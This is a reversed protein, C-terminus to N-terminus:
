PGLYFFELTTYKEDTGFFDSAGNSISAGTTYYELKAYSNGSVYIVDNLHVSTQGNGGEVKCSLGTAFPVFHNGDWLRIMTQVPSVEANCFQCTASVRYSGSTIIFQNYVPDFWNIISGINMKLTTLDRMYWGGSTCSGSDTGDPKIDQFLAYGTKGGGGSSNITILSASTNTVLTINSGATLTLGNQLGSSVSTIYPLSSPASDGYVKVFYTGNYYFFYTQSIGIDGMTLPIYTGISSIKRLEVGGLGGINIVVSGSNALNFTISATMGLIYSTINSSVATYYGGSVFTATASYLPNTSLGNISGSVGQAWTDIKFMNSNTVTGFQETRSQLYSVASGASSGTTTLGLYPTVTM